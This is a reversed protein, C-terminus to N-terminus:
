SIQKRIRDLDLLHHQSEHAMRRALTLVTREEGSSGIGIRNWHERQLSRLRAGTEALTSEITALVRAISVSPQQHLFAAPSPTLAKVYLAVPKAQM